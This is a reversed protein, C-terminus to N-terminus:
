MPASDRAFARSSTISPSTASSTLPSSTAALQHDPHRQPTVGGQRVRGYTTHLRGDPQTVLVVMHAPGGGWKPGLTGITRGADYYRACLPSFPTPRRVATEERAAEQALPWWFEEGGAFKSANGESTPTHRRNVHLAQVPNPILEQSCSYDGEPPRPKRPFTLVAALLDLIRQIFPGLRSQSGDRDLIEQNPRILLFYVIVAAAAAIAIRGTWDNTVVTVLWAHLAEWGVLGKAALYLLVQYFVPDGGLTASNAEHGTPDAWTAPNNAAYAYLNYGQTGAANPIVSDASLMRGTTPDLTRARLYVLGTADTLEGTFGFISSAGSTTRTTGFAEYSRMGVLNGNVDALGRVSGLADGLLQTAGGVGVESLLGDAHVYAKSGDDVLTPLGDQADVLYSKASGDITASVRVGDGDHTYSATHTGVSAQTLRNDYDWTFSDGGAQTLNGNADYTYTKNGVTVLQGAADYDYNTTSGSRTETKRNGAADYTYSVTLGGPYSAQTLRGLADYAYSETGEPTTVSTRRGADDYTYAFSLLTTAGKTHMISTVHGAADYAYTSEVGNPRTIKTRNGDSDYDFTTVRGQWDTLTALLGRANYDYTITRNGPLTMSARRGASDYTYTINGEPSSVDTARGASDYTYATQGTPDTMRTRQGADDYSFGVSGGPYTVSTQRRAADYGYSAQIGRADTRSTLDGATNYGWTTQRNLPDTVSNRIGLANYGYAWTKNRPDTVSTLQSAADYGLTVVGGLADTITTLRGVGDYGYSTTKNLPDTESTMRGVDDYGYAAVKLLPDTVSTLLGRSNYSYSTVAGSPATVSALRGGADYASATTKGGPDTVSVLQGAADYGYSTM